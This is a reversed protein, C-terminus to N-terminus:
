RRNRYLEPAVAAAMAEADLGGGLFAAVREGQGKPDRVADRYNVVLVAFEPRAAIWEKFKGIQERFLAALKEDTVKAGAEGRHGLMTRQSALIEDLNREMFIVRYERDTPLDYLLRYVMKVVKGRARELWWPDDRTKKVPEFEYYGRPNDEDAERVHDALAPLGGAELMQMMM